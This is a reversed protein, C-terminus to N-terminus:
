KHTGVEQREPLTRAGTLAIALKCMKAWIRDLREVQIWAHGEVEFIGETPSNYM